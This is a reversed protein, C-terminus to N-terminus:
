SEPLTFSFTSGKDLGPSEAWIQGGQKEVLYKSITLGIGSGGGIRSRSKDVRYFRKFLHPKHEATFGIGTDIVSFLIERDQKKINLKVRGGEPTYQLANGLLNILIQVTRDPDSNVVFQDSSLNIELIVNKENYQISLRPITMDLLESVPLPQINLEYAGAEIRSLEQLDKVLNQLRGAETHIQYFIEKEPQVVEDILAEMTGKITTLPTRLEHAVDAIMRMRIEETQQLSTAMQNFSLALLSLEDQDQKSLDGRVQVREDYYGEAIRQSAEMMHRVPAIVQQTILVSVLVAVAAAIGAAIAMSETVASRYNEFLDEELNLTTEKIMNSMMSSMAALHRDFASPATFEVTTALAIVGVLIVILYSLFLKVGLHSRIYSLM